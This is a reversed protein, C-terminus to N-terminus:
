RQRTRHRHRRPPRRDAEVTVGTRTTTPAGSGMTVPMTDSRGGATASAGPSRTVNVVVARGAIRSLCPATAPTSRSGGTTVRRTARTRRTSPCVRRDAATTWAVRTATSTCAPPTVSTSLPAVTVTSTDRVSHGAPTSVATTTTRSVVRVTDVAVAVSTTCSAAGSEHGGSRGRRGPAGRGVAAEDGAAVQVGASGGHRSWRWWRRWRWRRRRRWCPPGRVGSWDSYLSTRKLGWWACWCCSGGPTTWLRAGCVVRYSALLVVCFVAVFVGLRGWAAGEGVLGCSAVHVFAPRGFSLLSDSDGGNGTPRRGYSCGEPGGGGHPRSSVSM